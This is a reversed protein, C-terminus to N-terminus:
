FDAKTPSTSTPKKPQINLRNQNDLTPNKMQLLLTLFARDMVESSYAWHSRLKVCKSILKNQFSALLLKMFHCILKALTLFFQTYQLFVRIKWKKTSKKWNCQELHDLEKLNKVSYPIKCNENNWASTLYNKFKSFFLDKLNFRTWYIM